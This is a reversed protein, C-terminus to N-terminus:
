YNLRTKRSVPTSEKIALVTLVSMALSLFVLVEAVATAVAGNGLQRINDECMQILACVPCGDGSCDHDAEHAIFFVSLLVFLLMSAALLTAALRMKSNKESTNRHQNAM